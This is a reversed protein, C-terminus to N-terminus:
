KCKIYDSICNPKHRCRAQTRKRNKRNKTGGNKNEKQSIPYTKTNQERAKISKKAIDQYKKITIRLIVVYVTIM